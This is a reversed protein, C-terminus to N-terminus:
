ESQKFKVAVGPAKFPKMWDSNNEIPNLYNLNVAVLAQDVSLAAVDAGLRYYFYKVNQNFLRAFWIWKERARLDVIGNINEEIIGRYKMFCKGLDGEEDPLYSKEPFISNLIVQGVENKAYISYRHSVNRVLANLEKEASDHLVIQPNGAIQEMKVADQYGTGLINSPTRYVNGVAIGGRVLLKMDLFAHAIQMVKISVAILAPYSSDCSIPASIVISDSFSLCEIALNKPYQSLSGDLSIQRPIVEDFLRKLRTLCEPDEEANKVFAKFGLVDLYAVAHQSFKMVIVRLKPANELYRNKKIASDPLLRMTSNALM